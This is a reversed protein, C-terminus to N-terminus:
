GFLETAFVGNSASVASKRRSTFIYRRGKPRCRASRKWNAGGKERKTAVLCIERDKECSAAAEFGGTRHVGVLRNFAEAHQAAHQEASPAQKAAMRKRSFKTVVRNRLSPFFHIRIVDVPIGLYM